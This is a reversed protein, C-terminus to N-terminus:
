MEKKEEAPAASQTADQLAEAKLEAKRRFWCQRCEEFAALTEAAPRTLRQGRLEKLSCKREQLVAKLQREAAKFQVYEDVEAFPSVRKAPGKKKPPARGGRGRPKGAAQRRGSGAVQSARLSQALAIVADLQVLNLSPLTALVSQFDTM